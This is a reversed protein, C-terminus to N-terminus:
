LGRRVFVLHEGLILLDFAPGLRARFNDSSGEGPLMWDHPEIIICAAQDVWECAAAFLDAEFGEIDIKVVLLRGGSEDDALIDNLAVLRLSGAGAVTRRAWSAEGENALSGAGSRSAVGAEVVRIRPDAAVNLRLVEVNRPDPEIALVEAKPFLYAFFLSAAGINAGCDIILPRTGAALLQEYRRHLGAFQRFQRLDYERRGFIQRLTELDSDRPRYHLVGWRSSFWRVQGGALRPHLLSQGGFVKLDNLKIRMARYFRFV